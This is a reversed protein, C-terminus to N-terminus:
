CYTKLLLEFVIGGFLVVIRSLYPLFSQNNQPIKGRLKEWESIEM